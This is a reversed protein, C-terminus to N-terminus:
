RTARPPGSARASGTSSCCRPWRASPPPRWCASSASRRSATASRGRGRPLPEHPRRRLRLDAARLGLRGPLHRQPRRYQLPNLGLVQVMYLPLVASVMESSIDTLLSTLGLLLVTRAVFPRGTKRAAAFGRRARLLAVSDQVQYMAPLRPPSRKGPFTSASARIPGPRDPLVAPPGPRLPPNSLKDPNTAAASSTPDRPNYPRPRFSATQM